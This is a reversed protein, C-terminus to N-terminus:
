NVTLAATESGTSDLVDIVVATSNTAKWSWWISGGPPVFGNCVTTNEDPEYTANTLSGVFTTVNGELVTANTFNDNPPAQGFCCPSALGFLCLCCALTADFSSLWSRKQCRTM